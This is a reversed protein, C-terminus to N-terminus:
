DIQSRIFEAFKSLEATEHPHGDFTEEVRKYIEQTLANRFEVPDHDRKALVTVLAYLITEVSKEM